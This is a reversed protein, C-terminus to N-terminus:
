QLRMVILKKWVHLLSLTRVRLLFVIVCNDLELVLGSRLSLHYTKVAITAVKAGNSVRVDLEGRAFRRTMIIGQLSKCTHIMSGTDFVWSESSSTAINIEIVNIGLTSTESGKKKKLEEL